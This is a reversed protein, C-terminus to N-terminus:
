VLEINIPQYQTSFINKYGDAFHPSSERVEAMLELEGPPLSKGPIDVLLKGNEIHCRLSNGQPDNVAVFKRDGCRLYIKLWMAEPNVVEKDLTYITVCLQNDSLRNLKITEM